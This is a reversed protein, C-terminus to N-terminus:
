QSAEVARLQTGLEGLERRSCGMRTEFEWDELAENAERIAARLIAFERLTVRLVAVDPFLDVLDM